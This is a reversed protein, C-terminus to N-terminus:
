TSRQTQSPDSDQEHSKTDMFDVLEAIERLTKNVVQEADHILPSMKDWELRFLSINRFLHRFELYVRLEDHLEDSIVRPRESTAQTMSRLLARHWDHGSPTSKDLELSIRRFFNEIGSYMAHLFAAAASLEIGALDHTRGKELLDAHFEVTKKLELEQIAIQKKLRPWM